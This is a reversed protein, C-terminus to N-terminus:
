KLILSFNFDINTPKVFNSIPLDVSSFSNSKLLADNFSHLSARDSAVGQLSVTTTSDDRSGYIIQTFSIGPTRIKLLEEVISESFVYKEKKSILFALKNNTSSITSNLDAINLQPNEQNFIALNNEAIMEKSSAYQYSPILLLISIIGLISIAFFSTSILRTLYEHKVKNKEKKPLINIM